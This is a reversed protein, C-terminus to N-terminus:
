YRFTSTWDPKAGVRTELPAYFLGNGGRDVTLIGAGPATGFRGAFTFVPAGAGPTVWRYSKLPKWPTAGDYSIEWEVTEVVQGVGTALARYKRRILDDKNNNDVDAIFLGSVDDGLTPNIRRWRAAAGSSIAWHGGEVALVDTVGDGDFDGFRLASMPFSSRAADKWGQGPGTLTTIKWQGNATRWFAHTTRRTAGARHDRQSPDFRGFAVQSFPAFVQGLRTWEGTGGSSMVWTGNSETVVDCKNDADFYGFRVQSLRENRLSLFRWPFEGMGSFWWSVGTALFLDDIGDGDFDCVGYQGYTQTDLRNDPGLKIAGIDERYQLAVADAGWDAELGHHPFVNNSIEIGCRPSGRVKIANGNDYQFANFSYTTRAGAWGRFGNDGTGHIDFAHTHITIVTDFHVGGYRLVLNQTAEYGGMTGGAAISHRNASFLNQSIRAYAGATVEVGYGGAHGDLVGRPQQNNHIYNGVIRVQDPSGIRGQPGNFPPEKCVGEIGRLQWAEALIPPNFYENGSDQVRIAEGGFGAVEMNTIDIDVCQNILIGKDGADQQGMSPGFIRFGSIRIHDAQDPIGPFCRAEFFVKDGSSRHPGFKLLPGFAISSRAEPVSRFVFADGRATMSGGRLDIAAGDVRGRIIATGTGRGTAAPPPPPGSRSVVAGDPQIVLDGAAPGFWAVSRITVCRNIHIPLAADPIGSFDLVVNPGLLITTNPENASRIFYDRMQDHRAKDAAPDAERIEVVHRGPQCQDPAQALLTQPSVFTGTRELSGAGSLALLVVTIVTRKKM